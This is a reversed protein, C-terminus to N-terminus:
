NYINFFRNIYHLEYKNMILIRVHKYKHNGKYRYIYKYICGNYYKIKICLLSKFEALYDLYKKILYKNYNFTYLIHNENVKSIIKDKKYFLTKYKRRKNSDFKYNIIRGSLYEKIINNTYNWCIEAKLKYHQIRHILNGKYFIDITNSTTNMQKYLACEKPDKIDKIFYSLINNPKLM